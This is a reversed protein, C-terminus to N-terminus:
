IYFRFGFMSNHRIKSHLLHDQKRAMLGSDTQVDTLLDHSDSEESAIMSLLHLLASLLIWSFIMKMCGERRVGM